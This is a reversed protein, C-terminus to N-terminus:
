KGGGMAEQMAKEADNLADKYADMGEEMGKKYADMGKEMGDKYAEMGEEMAEEYGDMGEEFADMGEEMADGIDDGMGEMMKEPSLEPCDKLAKAAEEETMDKMFDCGAESLQKEAEDETLKGAMMDPLMDMSKKMCDCASTKEADGSADGCSSAVLGLVMLTTFLKKM